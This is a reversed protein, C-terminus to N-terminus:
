PRSRKRSRPSSSRGILCIARPSGKEAEPWTRRGNRRTGSRARACGSGPRTTKASRTDGWHWRRGVSNGNASASTRSNRFLRPHRMSNTPVFSLSPRTSSLGRKTTRRRARALALSATTTPEPLADPRLILMKAGSRDGLYNAGREYVRSCYRRYEADDGTLALLAAHCFRDSTNGAVPDAAFARRFHESAEAFLGLDAYAHGAVLELSARMRVIKSDKAKSDKAKPDKAKLDKAAADRSAKSVDQARQWAQRGEALRGAKWHLEAIRYLSTALGVQIRAARLSGAAFRELVSNARQM